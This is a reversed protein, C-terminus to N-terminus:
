AYTGKFSEDRMVEPAPAVVAFLHARRGQQPDGTTSVCDVARRSRQRDRDPTPASREM